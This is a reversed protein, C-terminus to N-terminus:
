CDGSNWVKNATGLRQQAICELGHATRVQDAPRAPKPAVRIGGQPLAGRGQPAPPSPEVKPKAAELRARLEEGLRNPQAEEADPGIEPMRNGPNLARAKPNVGGTFTGTRMKPPQAM